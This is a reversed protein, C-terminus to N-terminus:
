EIKELYSLKMIYTRKRPNKSRATPPPKRVKIRPKVNQPCVFHSAFGLMQTLAYAQVTHGSNDATAGM